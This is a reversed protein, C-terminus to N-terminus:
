HKSKGIRFAKKLLPPLAIAGILLTGIFISAVIGPVNLLALGFSIMGLLLVALVVGLMSGTGGAIGIGGLVVMTIVDLEWGLAINPRTSSIRSTLFAAALGAFTGSLTFLILRYRAVPIGSFKAAEPSNGIAYLQRGWRTRHLIIGVVLALVLFTVFSYPIPELLYGQGLAALSEPYKTLAQDGLIAQSIGRFLSMTGLTIAISPVAFRIVLFGNFFGALTGTLMALLILAPTDAGNQAALGMVLSSLAIISSVSLDIERTLILLAMAIAMIGKESFNFTADGLNYPDWFFESLRGNSFMVIGLLPILILEWRLLLTTWKFPARTALDNKM